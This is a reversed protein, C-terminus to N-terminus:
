QYRYPPPYQPPYQSGLNTPYQREHFLSDYRKDHPIQHVTSEGHHLSSESGHRLMGPARAHKVNDWQPMPGQEQKLDYDINQVQMKGKNRSKKMREQDVSAMIHQEQTQQQEITMEDIFMWHILSQRRSPMHLFLYGFGPWILPKRLLSQAVEYDNINQAEMLKLVVFSAQQPTLKYSWAEGYATGEEEQRFEEGREDAEDKRRDNEEMIM